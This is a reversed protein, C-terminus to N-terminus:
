FHNLNQYIHYIIWLYYLSSELSISILSINETSKLFWCCYVLLSIEQKDLRQYLAHTSAHQESGRRAIAELARARGWRQDASHDSPRSLLAYVNPHLTNRLPNVRAWSKWLERGSAVGTYLLVIFYYFSLICCLLCSVIPRIKANFNPEHFYALAFRERTNLRVKHPTSLLSNNTLYQLM